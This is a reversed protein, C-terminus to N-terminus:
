SAGDDSPESDEAGQILEELDPNLTSFLRGKVAGEPRNAPDSRDEFRNLLTALEQSVEAMEEATAWFTATSVTVAPIWEGSRLHAPAARLFAAMRAAERQVVLAGLESAEAISSPDDHEPRLNRGRHKTRWPKERGRPEAREIFGASALLRLHFSANAVSQDLREAIESATAEGADDMAEMIEIRLPHALARMVAPDSTQMQPPDHALQRTRERIGFKRSIHLLVQSVFM